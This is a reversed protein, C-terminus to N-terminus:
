HWFGTNIFSFEDNKFQICKLIVKTRVLFLHFLFVQVLLICGTTVKNVHTLEIIKASLVLALATSAVWNQTWFYWVGVGVFAILSIINIIEMKGKRFCNIFVQHIHKALGMGEYVTQNFLPYVVHTIQVITLTLLILCLPLNLNELIEEKDQSKDKFVLYFLCLFFAVFSPTIAANIFSVMMPKGGKKRAEETKKQWCKVSRFAGATIAGIAFILLDGYVAIDAVDAM